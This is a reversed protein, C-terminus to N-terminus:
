ARSVMGSGFDREPWRRRWMLVKWAPSYAELMVRRGRTSVEQSRAEESARFCSAISRSPVEYAECCIRTVECLPEMESIM